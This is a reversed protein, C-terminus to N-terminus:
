LFFGIARVRWTLKRIANVKAELCPFIKLIKEKWCKSCVHLKNAIGVDPALSAIPPTFVLAGPEKLIKRCINCRIKM